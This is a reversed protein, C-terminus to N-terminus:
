TWRTRSVKASTTPSGAFRKLEFAKKRSGNRSAPAARARAGAVSGDSKTGVAASDGHARVVADRDLASAIGRVRRSLASTRATCTRRRRAADGAPHKGARALRM